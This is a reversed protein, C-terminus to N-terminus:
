ATIWKFAASRYGGKDLFPVQPHFNFTTNHHVERREWDAQHLQNAPLHELLVKWVLTVKHRVEPHWLPSICLIWWCPEDAMICSVLLLVAFQPHAFKLSRISKWTNPTITQLLPRTMLSILIFMLIAQWQMMDQPLETWISINLRHVEDWKKEWTYTAQWHPKEV